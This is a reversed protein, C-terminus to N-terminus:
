RVGMAYNNVVTYGEAGIWLYQWRERWEPNLLGSIITHGAACGIMYLDINSHSPHEGLIPNTEYFNPDSVLRHTQYTDIALLSIFAGQRITDAKSWDEFPVSACGYFFFLVWLIILSAPVIHTHKM